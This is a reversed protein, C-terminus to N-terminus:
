TVWSSPWCSALCSLTVYISAEALIRIFTSWAKWSSTRTMLHPSDRPHADVLHRQKEGFLMLPGGNRGGRGGTRTVQRCTNCRLLAFPSKNITNSSKEAGNRLFNWSCSHGGDGSGFLLSFSLLPQWQTIKQTPRIM